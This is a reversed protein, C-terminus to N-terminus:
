AVKKSYETRSSLRLERSYQHYIVTVTHDDYCALEVASDDEVAARRTFRHASSTTVIVMSGRVPRKFIRSVPSRAAEPRTGLNVEIVSAM